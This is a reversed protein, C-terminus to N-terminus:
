LVLHKKLSKKKRKSGGKCNEQCIVMIAEENGNRILTEIEM